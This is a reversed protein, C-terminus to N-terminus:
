PTIIIANAIPREAGDSPKNLVYGNFYFTSSGGGDLNYADQVGLDQLKEQLRELTVGKSWYAQRGDVVILLLDENAYRGLITRPHKTYRWSSPIDIKRGGKLLVPIFSIGQYPELEDIDKQSQPITGIVKGSENVGAFFLTESKKVFSQVVEGDKVTAGVMHSTVKGSSDDVGFGGGNIALMAKHRKAMDTTTELGGPEDGALVVHISTPDFLKVKAMYGRYDLEKLEFVKIEVQPSVHAYIPDGLIRTVRKEYIDDSLRQQIFSREIELEIISTQSLFTQAYAEFVTRIREAKVNMELLAQSLSMVSVGLSEFDNVKVTEYDFSQQNEDLMLVAGAFPATLLVLFVILFSIWKM